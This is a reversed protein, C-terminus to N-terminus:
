VLFHLTKKYKVTFIYVKCTFKCTLPSRAVALQGNGAGLGGIHSKKAVELLGYAAYKERFHDSFDTDVSRTGYAIKRTSRAPGPGM